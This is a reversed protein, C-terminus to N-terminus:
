QRLARRHCRSEGAPLDPRPCALWNAMALAMADPSSRSICFAPSSASIARKFTQAGGMFVVEEGHAPLDAVGFALDLRCGPPDTVDALVQLPQNGCRAIGECHRHRALRVRLALIGAPRQHLLDEGEDLELLLGFTM